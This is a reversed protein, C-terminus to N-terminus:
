EGLIFQTSSSQSSGSSWLAQTSKMWPCKKHRALFRYQLQKKNMEKNTQKHIDFYDTFDLNYYLKDM